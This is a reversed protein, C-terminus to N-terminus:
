RALAKLAYANFCTDVTEQNVSAHGLRVMEANVLIDAYEGNVKGLYFVEAHDYEDGSLDNRAVVYLTFDPQSQMLIDVLASRAKEGAETDLGPADIGCLNLSIKKTLDRWERVIITDGDIVESPRVFYELPEPFATEQLKEASQSILMYSALVVSLSSFLIFYNVRM